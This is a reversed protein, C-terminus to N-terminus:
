HHSAPASSTANQQNRISAALKDAETLLTLVQRRIHQLAVYEPSESPLADIIAHKALYGEILATREQLMVPETTRSSLYAKWHKNGKASNCPKCCPLLNGLRHGHGSFVSNRVTAFVHDWTEALDGCYVCTLHDDPNQGLDRIASFVVDSDFHDSTAVASAFAHNITTRRRGVISYPKLHNQITTYRM